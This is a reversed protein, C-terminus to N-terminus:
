QHRSGPSVTRAPPRVQCVFLLDRNIVLVTGPGVARPHSDYRGQLEQQRSYMDPSVAGLQPVTLVQGAAGQQLLDDDAAQSAAEPLPSRCLQSLPEAAFTQFFLFDTRQYVTLHHYRHLHLQRMAAHMLILLNGLDTIIVLDLTCIHPLESTASIRLNLTQRDQSYVTLDTAIM